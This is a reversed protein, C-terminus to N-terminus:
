FNQSGQTRVLHKHAITEKFELNQEFSKTTRPPHLKRIGHWKRFSHVNSKFKEEFM